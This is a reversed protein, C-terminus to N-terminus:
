CLVLRQALPCAVFLNHYDNYNLNALDAVGDLYQATAEAVARSRESIETHLMSWKLLKAEKLRRWQGSHFPGHNINAQSTFKLVCKWIRGQCSHKGAAKSSNLMDHFPGRHVVWLLGIHVAFHLAVQGSSGRDITHSMMVQKMLDRSDPFMPKVERTDQNVIVIKGSSLKIRRFREQRIAHVQVDAPLMSRSVPDRCVGELATAIGQLHGHANERELKDDVFLDTFERDDM